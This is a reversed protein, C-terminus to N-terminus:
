GTQLELRTLRVGLWATWALLALLSVRQAMPLLPTSMAAAVYLAYVSLTFLATALALVGLLTLDRHARTGVVVGVCAALGLPGAVLVSAEHLWPLNLVSSLPVGLTVLTCWAGTAKVWKAVRPRDPFFRPAGAFLMALAVVMSIMGFRGFLAGPNPQGSRAVEDTLDCLYNTWFGHGAAGSDFQTGGPYLMAARVWCLVAVLEAALVGRGYSATRKGEKESDSM